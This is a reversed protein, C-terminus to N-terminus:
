KAAAAAKSEFDGAAVASLRAPDIHKRVAAAVTEPTLQRIHEELEEVYKMTRGEYLQRALLGTLMADNSRAVQQQQLYGARARELEESTVGGTVWRELEEAAGTEVKPMNAPNCIAFISLAASTDLASATFSSGAGYSLGGKHRLRDTLRSSFGGGLISNGM